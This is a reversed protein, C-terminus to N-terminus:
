YSKKEKAPYIAFVFQKLDGEERGWEKGKL